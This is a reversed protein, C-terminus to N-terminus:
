RLVFLKELVSAHFDAGTQETGRPGPGGDPHEWLSLAPGLAAFYIDHFSQVVLAEGILGHVRVIRIRQTNFIRRGSRRSGNILVIVVYVSHFYSRVAELKKDIVHVAKGIRANFGLVLPLKRKSARGKQQEIHLQATGPHSGNVRIIQRHLHPNVPHPQILAVSGLRPSSCFILQIYIAIKVALYNVMSWYGNLEAWPTKE